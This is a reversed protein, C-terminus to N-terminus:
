RVRLQALAAGQAQEAARDAVQAGTATTFPAGATVAAVIMASTRRTAGRPGTYKSIGATM